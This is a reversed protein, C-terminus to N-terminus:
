RFEANAAPESSKTTFAVKDKIDEWKLVFSDLLLQSGVKMLRGSPTEYQFIYIKYSRRAYLGGTKEFVVRQLYTGQEVGDKSYFKLGNFAEEPALRILSNTLPFYLEKRDTRFIQSFTLECGAPAGEFKDIESMTEDVLEWKVVKPKGRTKAKVPLDLKNVLAGCDGAALFSCCFCILMVATCVKKM